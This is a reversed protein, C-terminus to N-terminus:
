KYSHLQKKKVVCHGIYHLNFFSFQLSHFHFHFHSSIIFCFCVVCCVDDVIVVAYYPFSYHWTLHAFSGECQTSNLFLACLWHLCHTFQFLLVSFGCSDTSPSVFSPFVVLATVNIRQKATNNDPHFNQLELRNLKVYILTHPTPPTSALYIQM